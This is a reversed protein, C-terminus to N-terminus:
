LASWMDPWHRNNKRSNDSATLIQLNAACHLGCVLDSILPVAHDVHYGAGLSQAQKYIAAVADLDAWLPIAQLEAARRKGAYAVLAHPNRAKWEKIRANCEARRRARYDAERQRYVELNRRRADTYIARRKDPNRAVWDRANQLMREPNAARYEKNNASKREPNAASWARVKAKIREAHAVYYERKYAKECPICYAATGLKYFDSSPKDTRCRACRKLIADAM